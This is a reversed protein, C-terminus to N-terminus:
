VLRFVGRQAGRGEIVEGTHALFRCADQVEWPVEGLLDALEVASVWQSSPFRALVRAALARRSSQDAWTIEDNREGFLHIKDHWIIFHSECGTDRWVSPYLSLGSRAKRYLRWADGARADLNVPIDEGCGCPCKLLLWRPVGREILVADGPQSLEDTMETRSSLVARLTLLIRKM